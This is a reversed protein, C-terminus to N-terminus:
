EIRSVHGTVLGAAAGLDSPQSPRSSPKSRGLSHTAPETQPEVPLTLFAPTQSRPQRGKTLTEDDQERHEQTRVRPGEQIFGRGGM